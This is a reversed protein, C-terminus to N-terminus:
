DLPPLHGFDLRLPEDDDASSEQVVETREPAMGLADALGLMAAVLVSGGHRPRHRVAPARDRPDVPAPHLHDPDPDAPSM